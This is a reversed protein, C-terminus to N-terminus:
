EWKYRESQLRNRLDHWRRYGAHNGKVTTAGGQVDLAKLLDIVEQRSLEITAPEQNTLM